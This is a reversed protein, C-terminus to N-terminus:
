EGFRERAQAVRFSERSNELAISYVGKEVDDNFYAFAVSTDRAGAIWKLPTHTLWKVSREASAVEGIAQAMEEKAGEYTREQAAVAAPLANLRAISKALIAQSDALTPRLIWNKIGGAIGLIGLARFTQLGTPVWGRALAAAPIRWGSAKAARSFIMGPAKMALHKGAVAPLAMGSALFVADTVDGATIPMVRGSEMFTAPRQTGDPLNMMGFPADEEIAQAEVPPLKQPAETEIQTEQPPEAAREDIDREELGLEKRVERAGAEKFLRTREESAGSQRDLFERALQEREAQPKDTVDKGGITRKITINKFDRARQSKQDYTEATKRQRTERRSEAPEGSPLLKKKPVPANYRTKANARIVM